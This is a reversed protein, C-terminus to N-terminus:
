ACPPLEAAEGECAFRGELGSAYFSEVFSSVESPDVGVCRQLSGWATMAFAGDVGDYPTVILSAYGEDFVANVGALIRERLEPETEGLWFIVAGHEMSHVLQEVPQPQEYIVGPEVAIADHPGSTPPNSSYGGFGEGDPLHDNGLDEPHEVPFCSRGGSLLWGEDAYRADVLRGESVGGVVRVIRITARDDQADVSTVEALTGSARRIDEFQGCIDEETAFEPDVYTSALRCDNQGLARYYARVTAGPSGRESEGSLLQYGGFGLASAVAV